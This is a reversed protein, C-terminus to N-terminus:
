QHPSHSNSRQITIPDNLSPPRAPDLNPPSNGINHTHVLVNPLFPKYRFVLPLILLLFNRFTNQM